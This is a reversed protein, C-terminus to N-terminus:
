KNSPPNTQQRTHKNKEIWDFIPNYSPTFDSHILDFIKDKSVKESIIRSTRLYISNFLYDNIPQGDIEVVGNIENLRFKYNSKLFLEIDHLQTEDDKLEAIPAKWVQDLIDDVDQGSINEFEELYQRADTKGLKIAGM